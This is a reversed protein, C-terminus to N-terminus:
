RGYPGPRLAGRLVFVEQPQVAARSNSLGNLRIVGRAHACVGSAGAGALSIRTARDAVRFAILAQRLEEITSSHRVWLLKAATVGHRRSLTELDAGRLLELVVSVKRRASWRGTGRTPSASAEGTAM